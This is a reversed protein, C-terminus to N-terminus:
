QPCSPLERMDIKSTPQVPLAITYTFCLAVTIEGGVGGSNGEVRATVDISSDARKVSKVVGNAKAIAVTIQDDTLVGDQSETRLDGVADRALGRADDAAKVPAQGVAHEFMLVVVIVGVVLLTGVGAVSWAIIRVSRPVGSESSDSMIWTM